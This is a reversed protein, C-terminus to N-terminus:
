ETDQDEDDDFIDVENLGCFNVPALPIRGYGPYVKSIDTLFADFMKRPTDIGAAKQQHTYIFQFIYMQDRETPRGEKKMTQKLSKWLREVNQTHVSRDESNVFEVSHNVCEHIYGEEELKNYAKWGDTIIKTGPLIFKKIINVLTQRDRKKVRTIFCNKTERDIGGFVWIHQTENHLLRGRNYKRTCIHSEDIEVEHGPGGIPTSSHTTIVYCVERCFNYYDLATKINVGIEDSAVELTLGLLWCYVLGLSQKILLKSNSFWTDKVISTSKRCASCRLEYPFNENRSYKCVSVKGEAGCDVCDKRDNSPILNRTQCFQFAKENNEFISGFTLFSVAM